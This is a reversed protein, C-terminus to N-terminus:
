RSRPTRRRPRRTRRRWAGEGRRASPSTRGSRGAGRCRGPQEARSFPRQVEARGSAGPRRHAQCRELAWLPALSVATSPLEDREVLERCHEPQARVTRADDVQHAGPGCATRLRAARQDDVVQGGVDVDRWRDFDREEPGIHGEVVVAGQHGRGARGTLAPADRRPLDRAPTPQSMGPERRAGHDEAGRADRVESGLRSADALHRRARQVTRRTRVAGSPKLSSM